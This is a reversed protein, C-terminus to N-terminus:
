LVARGEVVDAATAHMGLGHDDFVDVREQVRVRRVTEVAVEGLGVLEGTVSLRVDEHVADDDVRGPMVGIRVNGGDVQVGTPVRDLQVVPQGPDM